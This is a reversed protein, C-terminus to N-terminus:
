PRKAKKPKPLRPTITVKLTADEASMTGGGIRFKYQPIAATLAKHMRAQLKRIKLLDLKM